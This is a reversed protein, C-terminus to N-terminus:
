EFDTECFWVTMVFWQSQHRLTLQDLNCLWLVGIYFDTVGAKLEYTNVELEQCNLVCGDHVNMYILIVATGEVLATEVFGYLM